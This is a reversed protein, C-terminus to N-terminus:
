AVRIQGGDVTFDRREDGGALRASASGTDILSPRTTTLVVQVQAVQSAEERLAAFLAATRARDLESSVEDLLLMPRVGSAGTLVDIEALKMALVVTRHQGQSAMTRVPRGGLDLAVDDRHPGVSASGRAQDRVRSAALAARFADEDEPASRVYSAGLSLGAPGIREFARQAAPLLAEAARSRAEALATGHRAALEEWGELDRSSPGRAELAKQRGRSARTYAEAHALSAPSLYLAVRDLLRRRDAGAGTTLSLEGPHFVVAPTRVAYAALTPPRKGDIRVARLGARLGVSQERSDEGERVTARVSATEAGTRILDGLRSTRFSRSTALVYLAELLNTKGQGNDGSVVNFRPGLELDVAELNRFGRVSVSEIALARPV